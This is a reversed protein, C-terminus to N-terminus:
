PGLPFLGVGPPQGGGAARLLMLLTGAMGTMLGPATGTGGVGDPWWEVDPGLLAIARDLLWRATVAHQEEGLVARAVLFLEAAGATGHCVTLGFDDGRGARIPAAASRFTARFAAGAEALLAPEYRGLERLRLRVLGIGAAGHCWWAPFARDGAETGVALRLDPWNGRDRDYWGREYQLAERVAVDFEGSRSRAGLEALAWAIGSSGHALGCLGPEDREGSPWSWGWARRQAREVLSRGLRTARRLWARDGGAAEAALAALILGAAGGVVDDGTPASEVAADLLDLAETALRHDGLAAGVQLAAVAVGAAGDHLGGAAAPDARRLAGLAGSRAVEALDGRGLATSAHALAWAIGADGDYVSPNGTRHVVSHRGEHFAVTTSLWTCREGDAVATEALTDAIQEAIHSLAAPPPPATV